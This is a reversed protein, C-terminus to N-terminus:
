EGAGRKSWVGLGILAAFLLWGFWSGHSEAGTVRGYFEIVGM